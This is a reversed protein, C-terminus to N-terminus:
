QQNNAHIELSQPHLHKTPAASEFLGSHKNWQTVRLSLRTFNSVADTWSKLVVLWFFIRSQEVGSLRTSSRQTRLPLYDIFCLSTPHPLTRTSLERRGKVSHALTLIGECTHTCVPWRWTWITPDASWLPSCWGCPLAQDVSGPLM